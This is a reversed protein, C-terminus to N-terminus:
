TRVATGLNLFRRRLMIGMLVLGSGYLLMSLPEPTPLAELLGSLSASKASSLTPLFFGSLDLTLQSIGTSGPFFTQLSGSVITIDAVRPGNTMGTSFFQALDLLSLTGTLFNTGTGGPGSSIVFSLTSSASYDAFPPFIGALTLLAPGGMLTYFGTTGSLAGQGAATGSVFLGMSDHTADVPTFTVGKTSSVGLSIGTQAKATMSGFMVGLTLVSLVVWLRRM